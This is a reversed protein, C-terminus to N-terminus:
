TGLEPAFTGRMSRPCSDKTQAVMLPRRRVERCKTDASLRSPLHVTRDNRRCTGCQEFTDAKGLQAIM